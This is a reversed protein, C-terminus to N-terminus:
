VAPNGVADPQAPLVTTDDVVLPATAPAAPKFFFYWIAYAAIVAILVGVITKQRKTLSKM